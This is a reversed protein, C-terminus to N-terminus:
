PLPLTASLFLETVLRHYSISGKFGVGDPYVQFEMEEELASVGKELWKKGEKTEQFFIGLYILGAIDSLYHNGRIHGFELTTRM